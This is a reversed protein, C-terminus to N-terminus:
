RKIPRITRPKCTSPWNPTKTIGPSLLGSAGASDGGSYNRCLNAAIEFLWTSFKGRVRYRHRTEYVRVFTEQALDLAETKCGMYRYIFSVLPQQWRTM